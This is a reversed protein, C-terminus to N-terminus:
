YIVTTVVKIQKENKYVKFSLNNITFEIETNLLILTKKSNKQNLFVKSVLLFFDKQCNKFPANLIFEAKSGMQLNKPLVFYFNCKSLNKNDAVIETFYEKSDITIKDQVLFGFFYNLTGVTILIVFAIITLILFNIKM